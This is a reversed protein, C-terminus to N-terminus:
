AGTRAPNQVTDIRIPLYERFCGQAFSVTKVEAIFTRRVCTHAKHYLWLTIGLFAIQVPQLVCLLLESQRLLTPSWVGRSSSGWEPSRYGVADVATAANTGVDKRLRISFYRVAFPPSLTNRPRRRRRPDDCPTHSGFLKAGPILSIANGQYSM